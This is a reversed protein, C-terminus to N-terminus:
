FPVLFTRGFPFLTRARRIQMSFAQTGYHFVRATAQTCNPGSPPVNLNGGRRARSCDQKSPSCVFSAKPDYFM